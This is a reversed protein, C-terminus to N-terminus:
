RGLQRAAPQVWSVVCCVSKSLGLHRKIGSDCPPWSGRWPHMRALPAYNRADAAAFRYDTRITRGELWGFSTLGDRSDAFQKTREPDDEATDQLMGTRRIREGLQSRATSAALRCGRRRAPHHVRTAEHAGRPGVCDVVDNWCHRTM